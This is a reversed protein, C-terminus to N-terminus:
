HFTRIYAIVDMMQKEKLIGVFAPMLNKGRRITDRLQIDPKALLFPNGAFDPTGEIVARGSAGHCGACHESYIQNGVFPDGACVTASWFFLLVVCGFNKLVGSM